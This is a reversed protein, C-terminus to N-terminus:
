MINCLVCQQGWCHERKHANSFIKLVMKYLLKYLPAKLLQLSKLHRTGMMEATFLESESLKELVFCRVDFGKSHSQKIRLSQNRFHKTKKLSSLSLLVNTKSMKSM